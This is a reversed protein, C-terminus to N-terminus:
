LPPSHGFDIYVLLRIINLKDAPSYDSLYVANTLFERTLVEPRTSTAIMRTINERNINFRRIHVYLRDLMNDTNPLVVNMISLFPPIMTSPNIQPYRQLLRDRVFLGTIDHSHQIMFDNYILEMADAEITM